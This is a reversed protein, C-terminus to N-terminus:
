AFNGAVANWSWNRSARRRRTADEPVSNSVMTRPLAGSGTRVPPSAHNGADFSLQEAHKGRQRHREALVLGQIQVGTSVPVQGLATAAIIILIFFVSIKDQGRLRAM